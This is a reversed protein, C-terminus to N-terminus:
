EPKWKDNRFTERFYRGRSLIKKFRLKRFVPFYSRWLNALHPPRCGIIFNYETGIQVGFLEYQIGIWCACIVSIDSLLKVISTVSNLIM